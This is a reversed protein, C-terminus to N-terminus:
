NKKYESPTKNTTKKFAINFASKSNFGVGKSITEITCHV